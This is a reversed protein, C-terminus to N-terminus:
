KQLKEIAKQKNKADDIYKKVKENYESNPNLDEIGTWCKIAGQTDGETYSQIGKMYLDRCKTDIITKVSDLVESAKIYAPCVLIIKRLKKVGDILADSDLSVKAKSLSENMKALEQEAKKRYELLTSNKPDTRLGLDWSQLAADYDCNAYYKLGKQFYKEAAAAQEGNAAVKEAHKILASTDRYGPSSKEIAKWKKLAAQYDSSAYAGAAEKYASDLEKSKIAATQMSGAKELAADIGPFGANYEKVKRWKLAATEYDGEDFYKKGESFYEETIGGVLGKYMLREKEGYTESASFSLRLGILHTFGLDAYSKLAYDVFVPAIGAGIGASLGSLAGLLRNEERYEYGARLFLTRAISYEAGAALSNNHSNYEVSVTMEHPLSSILRYSVGAALCDAIGPKFLEYNRVAAGARLQETIKWILGAGAVVSGYSFNSISKNAFNISVGANVNEFVRAGYAFGGGMIYPSFEGTVKGFDDRSKIAGMPIFYFDAGIVGYGVPLAAAIYQRSSDVLGAAYSLNIELNQLNQLGAPNLIVSDADDAIAAYAGALATNRPGSVTMVEEWSSLASPFIFVPLVLLMLASFVATKRMASM